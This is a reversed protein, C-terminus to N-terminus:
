GVNRRKEEITLVADVIGLRINIYCAEVDKETTLAVLTM